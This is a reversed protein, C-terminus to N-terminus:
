ASVAVSFVDRRAQETRYALIVILFFHRKGSALDSNM